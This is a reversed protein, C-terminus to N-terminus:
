VGGFGKLDVLGELALSQVLAARASGISQLIPDGAANTGIVVAGTQSLRLQVGRKVYDKISPHADFELIAAGSSHAAATTGNAGREVTYTPANVATIYLFEDDIKVLQGREFAGASQFTTATNNLAASLTKGKDEFRYGFGCEAKVEIFKGDAVDSQWTLSDSLLRLTRLTKDLEVDALAIATQASDGNTVSILKQVDYDLLLVRRNSSSVNGGRYSPAATYRLTVVHPDFRRQCRATVFESEAEILTLLQSDASNSTINALTKFEGIRLLPKTTM